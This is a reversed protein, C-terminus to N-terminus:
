ATTYIYVTLNPTALEGPVGSGEGWWSAALSYTDSNYTLGSPISSPSSTYAKFCDHTSDILYTFSMPYGTSYNRLDEVRIMWIKTIDLSLYGGYGVISVFRGINCQSDFIKIFGENGNSYNKTFSTDSPM